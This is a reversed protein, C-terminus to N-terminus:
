VLNLWFFFELVFLSPDMFVRVGWTPAIPGGHGSPYPFDVKKLFISGSLNGMSFHADRYGCVHHPCSLFETTQFCVAIRLPTFITHLVCLLIPPLFYSHILFPFITWSLSCFYWIWTNARSLTPADRMPSIMCCQGTSAEWHSSLNWPDNTISCTAPNGKFTLLYESETRWSSCNRVQQSKHARNKCSNWTSKFYVWLSESLHISGLSRGHLVTDVSLLAAPPVSCWFLRNLRYIKHNLRKDLCCSMLLVNAYFFPDETAGM